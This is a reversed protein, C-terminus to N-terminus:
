AANPQDRGWREAAFGLGAADVIAYWM